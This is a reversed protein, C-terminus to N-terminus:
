IIKAKPATINIKLYINSKQFFKQNQSFLSKSIDIKKNLSSYNNDFFNETETIEFKNLNSELLKKKVSELGSIKNKKRSM